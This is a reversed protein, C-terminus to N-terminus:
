QAHSWRVVEPKVDSTINSNLAAMKGIYVRDNRVRSAMKPSM